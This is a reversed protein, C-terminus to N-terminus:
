KDKIKSYWKVKKNDQLITYIGTFQRFYTKSILCPIVGNVFPRYNEILGVLM